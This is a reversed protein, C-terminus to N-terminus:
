NELLEALKAATDEEPLPTYLILRQEPAESPNFVAHEFLLRGATPHNLEKRGPGKDAV